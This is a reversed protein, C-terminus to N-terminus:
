GELVAIDTTGSETKAYVANLPAVPFHLVTGSKLVFYNTDSNDFYVLADSTGNNSLIMAERYEDFASLVVGSTNVSTTSSRYNTSKIM